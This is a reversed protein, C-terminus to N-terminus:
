EHLVLFPIETHYSIQAVLPEFLLRQFFNLNKAVMAILNIHESDVFSQLAIEIKAHTLTHFSCARTDLYADLYEKNEEQLSTLQQTDKKINLVELSSNQMDIVDVLTNIVTPTFNMHFDTPFAIKNVAQFHAKEPIVLIPCKVKTIVEGTHSGVAMEKLGSAGKTGMVIYDIKKEIVQNRISDILFLKEYVPFFRHQKNKSLNKVSDIFKKLDTATSQYVISPTLADSFDFGMENGVVNQSVHLMYFNCPYEKFFDLAYVVANWSNDSFDTPILINKM